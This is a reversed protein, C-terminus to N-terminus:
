DDEISRCKKQRIVLVIIVVVIAGAGLTVLIMVEGFGAPQTPTISVPLVTVIVMDSANNGAADTVYITFFFIGVSLDDLMITVTEGSSNWTGSSILTVNLFVEYAFPNPDELVWTINHGTAGVKFEIDNASIITPDTTDTVTVIVTDKASNNNTDYVILTFNYVGYGLGDICFEIDSGNWIESLILIGNRM